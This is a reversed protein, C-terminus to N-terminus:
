KIYYRIIGNFVWYMTYYMSAILSLGQTERLFILHYVVLKYKKSTASGPRQRYYALEDDIPYSYYGDKLIKLWLAYDQKRRHHSMYYKGIKKQNYVATLCSIETKKLLHDYGVPQKSVHFTEKIKKGSESIYGYSTHSFVWNNKEMLCIQIELKQNAWIDDGDLFAIYEGKAFEIAKNRSLGAGLNNKNKIIKIRNDQNVFNIIIKDTGDKSCDDVIILEWNDYTQKIVSNIMEYIYDSCNYVATIISVLPYNRTNM